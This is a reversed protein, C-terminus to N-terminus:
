RVYYYYYYTPAPQYNVQRPYNAFQFPSANQGAFNQAPADYTGQPMPTNSHMPAPPYFQQAPAGYSHGHGYSSGSFSEPGPPQGNKLAGWLFNNGGSQMEWNLGVGFRSNVWASAQQQTLAMMSIAVLGALAIKKM